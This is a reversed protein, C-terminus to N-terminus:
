DPDALPPIADVVRLATRLAALAREGSVKPARRTRVADVFDRLQALLADEPDMTLKEM